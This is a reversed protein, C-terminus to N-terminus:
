LWARRSYLWWELSLVALAAAVLWPWLERNQQIKGRQGTVESRGITLSDSPTVATERSDLLNVAHRETETGRTVAYIGVQTTNGFYVPRMPDLNVEAKRNNPLTVLATTTGEAPYIALPSGSRVSMEGAVAGKPTWTLLNQMFLPFSLRLPWNSDALSFAAVLIQQGGRSVDAILASGHTSVLTRAGEPLVLKKARVVSVGSPNLLRMMPHESDTAVVPPSDVEGEASLGTVPPLAGFFLLTGQPLSEPAFGDFIALDYGTADSYGAPTVLSLDVRPDLSLVRKLFYGSTSEGETVLLVNVKTEPRLVLWATNDVALADEHDLHARLIGSDLRPHTFILERTEKAPVKVEEIALTEDNFYLTLTSDLPEDDENRVLVLSQREGEGEEPSRMTFAVIGANKSTEGIRLYSVNFARAGVDELDAINGDSMLVLRLDPALATGGPKIAGDVGEKETHLLSSALLVADRLRTGTDTAEIARIANRLRGRDTTLECLVDAKEAFAVVMMKDGGAMDDVMALAEKQAIALRSTGGEITQMSASRDLLLCVNTGKVGEARVFPRALGLALLLLVLIQLLMLLNKRLRQFPANATLDQLSRQWLLTSPVMVQTRRLKLLYLLIVVPILMLFALYVPTLFPTMLVNWFGTIASM